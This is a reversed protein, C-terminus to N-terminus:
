WELVRNSLVNRYRSTHLILFVDHKTGMCMWVFKTRIESIDAASLRRESRAATHGRHNGM